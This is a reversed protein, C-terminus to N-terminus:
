ALVHEMLDQRLVFGFSKRQTHLIFAYTKTHSCLHIHAVPCTHRARLVDAAESDVAPCALSSPGDAVPFTGTEAVLRM